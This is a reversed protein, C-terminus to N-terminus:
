MNGVTEPKEGGDPPVPVVTTIVPVFKFSTAAPFLGITVKLPVGAVTVPKVKPEMVEVTGPLAVDPGIETLVVLPEMVLACVKKTGALMMLKVGVLPATFVRTWILPTLKVLAEATKNLPMVDVSKLTVFLVVIPAFAGLPTVDPGMLTVVGAPVTVLM